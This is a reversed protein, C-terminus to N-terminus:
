KLGARAAAEPDIVILAQAAAKRVLDKQDKLLNLLAPVASRADSGFAQLSRISVLRINGEPNNLLAILVPVVKQPEAHIEGLAELSNWDLGAKGPRTVNRLLSPVANSAAPGIGGLVHAVIERYRM